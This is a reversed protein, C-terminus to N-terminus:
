KQTKHTNLYEMIRRAQEGDFNQPEAVGQFHVIVYPAGPTRRSGVVRIIKDLSLWEGGIDLFEAMHHRRTCPKVPSATPRCAPPAHLFAPLPSALREHRGRPARPAVM